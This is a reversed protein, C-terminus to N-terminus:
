PESAGALYRLPIPQSPARLTINGAEAPAVGALDLAMRCLTLCSKGQCPGTGLGTYRKLSELDRCGAAVADRLEVDNVDECACVITKATTM